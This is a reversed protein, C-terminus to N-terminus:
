RQPNKKDAEDAKRILLASFGRAEVATLEMALHIHPAIGTEERPYDLKIAVTGKPTIAFVLKDPSLFLWKDETM